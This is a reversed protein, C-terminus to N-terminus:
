RKCRLTIPFSFVIRRFDTCTGRGGTANRTAPGGTYLGAPWRHQGPETRAVRSCGRGDGDRLRGLVRGSGHSDGVQGLLGGMVRWHAGKPDVAGLFSNICSSEVLDTGLEGPRRDLDARTLVVQANEYCQLLPAILGVLEFM